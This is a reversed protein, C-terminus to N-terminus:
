RHLVDEIQGADHRDLVALRKQPAIEALIQRELLAVLRRAIRRDHTEAGHFEREAIEIADLADDLQQAEDVRIRSELVLPTHDVAGSIQEDLEIALAPQPCARGDAAM